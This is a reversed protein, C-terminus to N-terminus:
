CAKGSGKVKVAWEHMLGGYKAPDALIVAASEANTKEHTSVQSTVTKPKRAARPAPFLAPQKPM